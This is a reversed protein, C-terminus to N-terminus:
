GSLPLAVVRDGILAGQVLGRDIASRFHIGGYLRSIAAEAAADHFSTFHRAPLGRDHHTHDTFPVDGFQGTLVTAAAASQVSHGSTYEPFPPTSLPLPDGWAPDIHERIYTIPRLLNYRYKVRWCAIFADAVAIGLRAYAEAATALSADERRLMATLISLSHGPPTSTAGPDDSWFRAIARQEDTLANVTTYVEHAELFCASSPDTSFPVPAEPDGAPSGALFTRNRGWYPQLAPQFAPPTPVWTGPGTPPVYDTPFNRLYGEDGGDDRSWEFIARAIARGRDTSRDRLARPATALHGAELADVAARRSAPANPFLDRTLQALAANAVIPWNYAGSRGAGPLPQLSRLLGASSRHDPMGDVVAEYLAIGMYGIARSAVPPSYGPTTRVQAQLEDFWATAVAADFAEAPDPRSGERSGPRSGAPAEGSGIWGLPTFLTAGVAARRLLQRRSIGPGTGAPSTIHTM